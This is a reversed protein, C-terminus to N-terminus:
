DILVVQMIYSFNESPMRSDNKCQEDGTLPTKQQQKKQTKKKKTQKNPNKKNNSEVFQRYM